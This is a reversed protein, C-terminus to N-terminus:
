AAKQLAQAKNIVSELSDDAKGGVAGLVATLRDGSYYDKVLANRTVPKVAEGIPLGGFDGALFSSATIKFNESLDVNKVVTSKGESTVVIDYVNKVTYVDEMDDAKVSQAAVVFVGGPTQLEAEIVASTDNDLKLRVYNPDNNDDIDRFIIIGSNNNISINPRKSSKNGM